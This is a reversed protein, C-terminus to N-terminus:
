VEGTLLLAPTRRPGVYQTAVVAGAVCSAAGVVGQTGASAATAAAAAVAAATSVIATGVVKLVSRLNWGEAAPPQAYAKRQFRHRNLVMEEQKVTAMLNAMDLSQLTSMWDVTGQHISSTCPLAAGLKHLITQLLQWNPVQEQSAQLATIELWGRMQQVMHQFDAGHNDLYAQLLGVPLTCGQTAAAVLITSQDGHM